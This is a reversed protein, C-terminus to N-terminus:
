PASPQSSPQPVCLKFEVFQTGGHNFPQDSLTFGTRRLWRHALKNGSAVYNYLLTKGEAMLGIYYPAVKSFSVVPFKTTALFWPCGVHPAGDIDAVGAMLVPLGDVFGVWTRRSAEVCLRLADELEVGPYSAAVERADWPRINEAFHKFDLEVTEVVKLDKTETTM